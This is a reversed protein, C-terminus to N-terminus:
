EQSNSSQQQHGRWEGASPSKEICVMVPDNASVQLIASPVLWRENVDLLRRGHQSQLRNAGNARGSAAVAACDGACDLASRGVSAVPHLLPM